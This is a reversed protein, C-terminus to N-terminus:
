AAHRRDRHRDSRDDNSKGRYCDRLPANNNSLIPPTLPGQSSHPIARAPRALGRHSQKFAGHAVV